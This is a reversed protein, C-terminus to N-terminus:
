KKLLSLAPTQPNKLAPSGSKKNLSVSLQSMESEVLNSVSPYNETLWTSLNKIMIKYENSMKEKPAVGSSSDENVRKILISLADISCNFFNDTLSPNSELQYESISEIVQKNANISGEHLGQRSSLAISIIKSIHLRESDILSFLEERSFEDLSKLQRAFIKLNMTPFIFDDLTANQFFDLSTLLGDNVQSSMTKFNRITM